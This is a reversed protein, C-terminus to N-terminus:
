NARVIWRPLNAEYCSLGKKKLLIKMLLLLLFCISCDLILKLWFTIMIIGIVSFRASNLDQYTKANIIEPSWLVPNVNTVYYKSNNKTGYLIYKNMGKVEKITRKSNLQFILNIFFRVFPVMLSTVILYYIWWRLKLM